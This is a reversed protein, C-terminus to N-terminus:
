EDDDDDDDSSLVSLDFCEYEQSLLLGGTGQKDVRIKKLPPLPTVVSPKSSSRKTSTSMRHYDWLPPKPLVGVTILGVPSCYHLTITDLLKGRRINDRPALPHPTKITSAGKKSRFIMKKDQANTPCEVKACGAFPSSFDKDTFKSGDSIGEYLLVQVKGMLLLPTKDFSDNLQRKPQMVKLATFTSICDQLKWVGYYGSDTGNEKYFLVNYGLDQDDVKFECRVTGQTPVVRQLHIYYEIDPEVEVYYKGDKRHEKFPKKTEAEVLEVSFDKQILM